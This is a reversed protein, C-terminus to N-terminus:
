DAILFTDLKKIFIALVKGITEEYLWSSLIVVLVSMLITIILTIPLSCVEILHIYLWCGFSCIIPFHFIYVAYSVKALPSFIEFFKKIKSSYLSLMILLGGALSYGILGFCNLLEINSNHILIRLIKNPMGCELGVALVIMVLNTIGKSFLRKVGESKECYKIISGILFCLFYCAFINNICICILLLGISCITVYKQKSTKLFSYFLVALVAGYIFYPISWLPGCIGNKFLLPIGIFSDFLIKPCSLVYHPFSDVLWKNGTIAYYNELSEGGILGCLCLCFFIPTCINIYRHLFKKHLWKHNLNDSSYLFGSITCFVCVWFKGNLVISGFLKLLFVSNYDYHYKDVMNESFFAAYLHGLMVLVCALGKIGDISRYHKMVKSEGLIM